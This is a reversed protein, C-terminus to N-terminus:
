DYAAFVGEVRDASRRGVQGGDQRTSRRGGLRDPSAREYLSCARFLTDRPARRGIRRYGPFGAVVEVPDGARAFVGLPRGLGDLDDGVQDGDFSRAKQAGAERPGVGICMSIEPAAAARGPRTAAELFLPFLSSAVSDRAM